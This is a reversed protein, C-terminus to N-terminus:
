RARGPCRAPPPASLRSDGQRVDLGVFPRGPLPGAGIDVNPNGGTNFAPAAPSGPAQAEGPAAQETAERPPIESAASPASAGSLKYPPLSEKPATTAKAAFGPGWTSGGYLGAAAVLGAIAGFIFGVIKLM